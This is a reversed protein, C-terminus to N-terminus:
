KKIFKKVSVGGSKSSLKVIYIGASLNSVDITDSINGRFTKVQQGLVDTISIESLVESTNISLEDNVPNPYLGFEFANQEKVSLISQTNKVVQFRSFDLTQFGTTTKFDQGVFFVYGGTTTISTYLAESIGNITTISSIPTGINDFLQSVLSTSAGDSGMQIELIVHYSDGITSVVSGSTESNLIYNTNADTRVYIAAHEVGVQSLAPAGYDSAGETGLSNIIGVNFLNTSPVPTGSAPEFDLRLRIIQGSTAIVPRQWQTRAWNGSLRQYGYEFTGSAGSYLQNSWVVNTAWYEKDGLETNTTFGESPYFNILAPIYDQAQLSMTICLFLGSLFSYYHKM